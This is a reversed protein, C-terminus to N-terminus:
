TPAGNSPHSVDGDKVLSARQHTRSDRVHAPDTFRNQPSTPTALITKPENM